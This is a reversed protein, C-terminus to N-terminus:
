GEAHLAILYGYPFQDIGLYMGTYPLMCVHENHRWWISVNETYSAMPASFEGTVPSYGACLGNIRLKLTKM